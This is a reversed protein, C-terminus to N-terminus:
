SAWHRSGAGAPRRMEYEANADRTAVGVHYHRVRFAATANEDSDSPASDQRPSCPGGLTLPAFDAVLATRYVSAPAIDTPYETFERFCSFMQGATIINECCVGFEVGVNAHNM